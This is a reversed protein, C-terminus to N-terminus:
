LCRRILPSCEETDLRLEATGKRAAKRIVPKQRLIRELLKELASMRAKLAKVEARTAELKADKTNTM